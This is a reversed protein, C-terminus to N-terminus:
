KIGVFRELRDCIVFSFKYKLKKHLGSLAPLCHMFDGLNHIRPSYIKIM